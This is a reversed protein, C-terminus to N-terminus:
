RDDSGKSLPIKCRGQCRLVLRCKKLGYHFKNSNNHHSNRQLYSHALSRTHQLLVQVKGKRCLRKRKRAMKSILTAKTEGKKQKKKVFLGAVIPNPFHQDQTPPTPEGGVQHRHIKAVIREIIQFNPDSAIFSVSPDFLCHFVSVIEYYLNIIWVLPLHQHM